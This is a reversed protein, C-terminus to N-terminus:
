TQVWGIFSTTLFYHRRDNAPRLGLILGSIFLTTRIMYGPYYPQRMQMFTNPIHSLCPYVTIFIDWKACYRRKWWFWPELSNLASMTTGVDMLTHWGEYVASPLTRRQGTTGSPDGTGRCSRPTDGCDSGRRTHDVISTSYCHMYTGCTSQGTSGASGLFHLFYWNKHMLLYVAEM